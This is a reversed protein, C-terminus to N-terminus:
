RGGAGAASGPGCGRLRYITVDPGPRQYAGPYYLHTSFDFDFPVPRAGPM